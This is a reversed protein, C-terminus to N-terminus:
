PDEGPLFFARTGGATFSRVLDACRPGSLWDYFRRAPETKQHEAAVPRVLVAVHPVRAASGEGRRRFPESSLVGKGARVFGDAAARDDVVVVDADGREGLRLCEAVTGVTPHVEIGSEERFAALLVPLFGTDRMPPTVAVRITGTLPLTGPKGCAAASAALLALGALARGALSPAM